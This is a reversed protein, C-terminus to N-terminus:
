STRVEASSVRPPAPLAGGLGNVAAQIQILYTALADGWAVPHTATAHNGLVVSDNKVTIGMKAENRLVVKDWEQVRFVLPRLRDLWAVVVETGVVPIVALGVAGAYSMIRLPVDAIDEGGDEPTVTCTMEAENVAAVTGVTFIKEVKALTNVIDSLTELAM